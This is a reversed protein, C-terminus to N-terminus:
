FALLELRPAFHIRRRGRKHLHHRPISSSRTPWDQLMGHLRTGVIVSAPLLVGQWIARGGAVGRVMVAAILDARHVGILVALAVTYGAITGAALGGATGVVHFAALFALTSLNGAPLIRAIRCAESRGAEIHTVALVVMSMSPFTSVLGTWRPDALYQVVGLLVFYAAPILTRVAMVDWTSPDPSLGDTRDREAIPIRRIIAAATAVAGCAVCLRPMLGGLPLLGLLSAGALYGGIATLLALPLRWHRWATLTYTLPVALAATLGIVNSEAM